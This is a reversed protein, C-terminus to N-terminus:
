GTSAPATLRDRLDWRYRLDRVPGLARALGDPTAGEREYFAQGRRNTGLVWVMAVEHDAALADLAAALLAAGIGHSRAAAAVWLDYVEGAGTTGPDFCPGYSVFGVLEAVEAVLVTAVGPSALSAEWRAQCGPWSLSDLHEDPLLGRYGETWGLHHLRAVQSADRPTAPRILVQSGSRNSASVSPAEPVEGSGLPVPGLRSSPDRKQSTM